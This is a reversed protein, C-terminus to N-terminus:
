RRVRKLGAVGDANGGVQEAYSGAAVRAGDAARAPEELRQLVIRAVSELTVNDDDDVLLAGARGVLDAAHLGEVVGVFQVCIDVEVEAGVRAGPVGEEVLVRFHSEGHAPRRAHAAIVPLALLDFSPRGKTKSSYAKVRRASEVKRRRSIQKPSAYQSSRPFYLSEEPCIYASSRTRLSCKCCEKKTKCVDIGMSVSYSGRRPLTLVSLRFVHVRTTRDDVMENRPGSTEGGSKSVM